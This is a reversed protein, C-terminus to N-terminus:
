MQYPRPCYQCFDPHVGLALLTRFRRYRSSFWIEELTNHRLDGVQVKSYEVRPVLQMLGNCPLVKGDYTVFCGKMAVCPQPKRLWIARRGISVRSGPKEKWTPLTPLEKIRHEKKPFIRMSFNISDLGLDEALRILQPVESLNKGSLTATLKLAPKTSNKEERTKVFLRVKSMVDEFNAGVRLKEFTEKRASDISIYLYDTDAQILRRAKTEDMLTFSSTFGVRFGGRKAYKVMSILNRNLLPEGVGTLDVQQTGLRSSQLQDITSTFSDFPMDFNEGAARICTRCKMNCKTTSELQVYSPALFCSAPIHSIWDIRSAPSEKVAKELSLNLKSLEV